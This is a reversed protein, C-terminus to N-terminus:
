RVSWFNLGALQQLLKKNKARKRLKIAKWQMEKTQKEANAIAQELNILRSGLNALYSEEMIQKMIYVYLKEDFYRVLTKVDPEAIFPIGNSDDHKSIFEGLEIQKESQRAMSLYQSHFVEVQDYKSLEMILDYDFGIVGRDGEEISVFKAKKVDGGYQEFMRRASIGLLFIDCKRESIYNWFAHFVKHQVESNSKIPSSTLVVALPMNKSLIFRKKRRSIIVKVQKGFAVRIENYIDSLGEVFQRSGLVRDRTKQVKSVYIYEYVQAINGILKSIEIDKKIKLYTSM